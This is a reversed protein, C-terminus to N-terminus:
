FRMLWEIDRDAFTIIHEQKHILIRGKCEPYHTCVHFLSGVNPGVLMFPKPIDGLGKM